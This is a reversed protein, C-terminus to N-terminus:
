HRSFRRRRRKTPIFRLVLGLGMHDLRDKVVGLAAMKESVFLISKGQWVANAIINTITQSRGTGAL